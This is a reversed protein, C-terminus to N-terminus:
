VPFRLTVETGSNIHSEITYTASLLSMCDAIIFWGIGFGKNDDQIYRTRNADQAYETLKAVQLPTMGKGTDTVTLLFTNVEIQADITITGGPSHKIANEVLNYLIINLLQKDSVFEIADDVKITFRIGSLEAMHKFLDIKQRVFQSLHIIEKQVKFTEDQTKVWTLLDVSHQLLSKSTQDITKMKKPDTATDSNAMNDTLITIFKLPGVINHSFVSMARDKISISLNLAEQKKKLLKLNNEIITNQKVLEITRQEIQKELKINELRIKRNRANSYFLIICIFVIFCLVYFWWKQYYRLPVDITISKILIKDPHLNDKLRVKLTYQGGPLNNYSISYDANLPLWYKDFGELQYDLEINNLNGWYALSLNIVLHSVNDQLAISQEPSLMQSDAIVEDILIESIPGPDSLKDPHIWALGSISPLSYLDKELEIACPYCGGNFENTNLGDYTSYYIYRIANSKGSFLNNEVTNAKIQFLGKNTTIWYNFRQDQFVCHSILLHNNKDLPLKYLSKNKICFLGNGYTAMWLIGSNSVFLSKIELKPNLGMSDVIQLNENFQYLKNSNLLYYTKTDPAYVINAQINDFFPFSKLKTKKDPLSNDYIILGENYNCIWIRNQIDEFLHFVNKEDFVKTPTEFRGNYKIRHVGQGNAAYYIHKFHDKLIIYPNISGPLTKLKYTTDQEIIEIASFIMLDSLKVQAAYSKHITKRPINIGSNVKYIFLGNTSTGLFLTRNAKDYHTNTVIIDNPLHSILESIILKGNEEHIDYVKQNFIFVVADTLDFIRPIQPQKPKNVVLDTELGNDSVLQKINLQDDIAYVKGGLAFINQTYKISLPIVINGDDRVIHGGKDARGLYCIKGRTDLYYQNVNFIEKNRLSHSLRNNILSDNGIRKARGNKIKLVQYRDTIAFYVKDEKTPVITLIRNSLLATDIFLKLKHGDFRALGNETAIWLYGLKDKVLGKISNQPLGNVDTLHNILVSNGFVSNYCFFLVIFPVSM